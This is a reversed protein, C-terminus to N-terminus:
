ITSLLPPLGQFLNWIPAMSDKASEGQASMNWVNIKPQLGQVTATKTNALREYTSNQLMFYQGALVNALDSYAKAIESLGEAERQQTVLAAQAGCGKRFYEAEAARKTAYFNAKAEVEKAKFNAEADKM